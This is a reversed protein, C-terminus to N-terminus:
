SRVVDGAVDVADAVAAVAAAQRQLKPADVVLCRQTVAVSSADHGPSSRVREEIGGSSILPMVDGIGSLEGVLTDTPDGVIVGVDLDLIADRARQTIVEGAREGSDDGLVVFQDDVAAPDMSEPVTELVGLNSVDVDGGFLIMGDAVPEDISAEVVTHNKGSGDEGGPVHYTTVRVPRGDVTGALDPLPHTTAPLGGASMSLRSLFGCPGDPTLGAQRGVAYWTGIRLRGFVLFVRSGSAVAAAAALWRSDPLRQSPLAAEAMGSYLAVATGIGLPLWAIQAGAYLRYRITM